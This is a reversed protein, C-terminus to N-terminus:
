VGVGCGGVGGQGVLVLLQQVGGQGAIGIARGVGQATEDVEGGSAAKADTSPPAASSPATPATM